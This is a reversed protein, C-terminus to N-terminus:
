LVYDDERETVLYVINADKSCDALGAGRKPCNRKLHGSQGCGWCVTNGEMPNKKKWNAVVLALNEPTSNHGGSLRRGESKQCFNAPLKQSSFRRRGM